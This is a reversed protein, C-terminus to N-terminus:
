EYKDPPLGYYNALKEAITMWLPVATESAYISSSPRELKVLMVFEDYNPLFGVFTANTKDPLYEGNEAIQATGTKGAVNYGKSVFYKAEGGSVAKTLMKVITKSTKSSIVRDVEKPEYSVTQGNFIIEKVIHPRILIGDNEIASFAMLVQLPTASFGQGFSAAALDIDSWDKYNRFEGAEEGELDVGLKDGIGFKQFYEYLKKSGVKSGVMSAGVNDSLQLVQTMTIEGHHKKDWNDVLHGSYEVPGTDLVTTNPTVIGLDIASSMTLAKIVSGPEYTSSIANNVFIDPNDNYYEGFRSPNYTPYNVMSIIAGTKPNVVIVVGSKAGFDKVAKSLENYVITQVARDITTVVTSGDLKKVSDFGAYIIPSGLASREQKLSGSVGSLDGNYFGEIGFYGVNDGDENKGVFGLIHSYISDSSYSRSGVANFHLSPIKLSEIYSKQNEDLGKQLYKFRMEKDNIADRWQAEKQSIYAKYVDLDVEKDNVEKDDNKRKLQTNTNKYLYDFIKKLDDFTGKFTYPDLYLDYTTSSAALISYDSALIDGRKSPIESEGFHQKFAVKKWYNRNIVQTNFLKVLVLSYLLLFGIFIISVRTTCLKQVNTPRM